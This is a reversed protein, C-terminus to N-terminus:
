TLHGFRKKDSSQIAYLLKQEQTLLMTWENMVRESYCQLNFYSLLYRNMEKLCMIARSINERRAEYEKHTTPIKRNAKILSFFADDVAEILLAGSTDDYDMRASAVKGHTYRHLDSMTKLFQANNVARWDLMMFGDTRETYPNIRNLLFLERNFLEVTQAMKDTEFHQVNWMVLMPREMDYIHGIASGVMQKIHEAREARDPTYYDNIEVIERYIRNMGKCIEKCLWKQRRRPVATTHLQVNNYLVSFTNEFETKSLQRKSRLVAM